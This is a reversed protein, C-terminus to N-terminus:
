EWDSFALMVTLPAPAGNVTISAKESQSYNIHDVSWHRCFVKWGNLDVPINQVVLRDTGDGSVDLHPFLDNIRAAPVITGDPSEFLWEDKETYMSSVVFSTWGDPDVTANKPNKIHIPAWIVAEYSKTLVATSGDGSVTVSVGDPKNNIYGPIGAAFRYGPNATYTVQLTYTGKGFRVTEAAGSGNIWAVSSITCDTSSSTVNVHVLEMYVVPEYNTSCLVKKIEQPESEAALARVPALAFLGVCLCLALFLTSLRKIETRM